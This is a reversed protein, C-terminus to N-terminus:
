VANWRLPTPPDGAAWELHLIRRRTPRAARFSAHVLLPRMLVVDGPDTECCVWAGGAREAARPLDELIGGAHTGPLVHLPGNEPGAPDIAVRFTLMSELVAAPPRTHVVGKKVSWPGFGPLDLREQVAIATDQHPAVPWNHSPTKDFLIARTLVADKGMIERALSVVGPCAAIARLEACADLPNRVGVREVSETAARAVDVLGAPVVGRLM